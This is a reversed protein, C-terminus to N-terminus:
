QINELMELYKSVLKEATGLAYFGTDSEYCRNEFARESPIYGSNGTLVMTFEYPSRAKIQIGSESFMEYTGTAFGVGGM